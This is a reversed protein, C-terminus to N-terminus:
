IQIDYIQRTPAVVTPNSFGNEWQVLGDIVIHRDLTIAATPCRIEEPIRFIYIYTNSGIVYM